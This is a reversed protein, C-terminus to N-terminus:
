LIQGLIDKAIEREVCAAFADSVFNEADVRIEDTEWFAGATIIKANCTFSDESVQSYKVLVKDSLHVLTKYPYRQDTLFTNDNIGESGSASVDFLVLSLIIGILLKM